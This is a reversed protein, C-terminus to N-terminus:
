RPALRVGETSLALPLAQVYLMRGGLFGARIMLGEEGGPTGDMGPFVFNGLSWFVPKGLIWEMGQAVHPHSGIVTDAGAAVLETVVRRFEPSPKRSWEEGGHVLVIDM